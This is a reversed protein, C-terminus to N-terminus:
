GNCDLRVELFRKDFDTGDNVGRLNRQFSELTM